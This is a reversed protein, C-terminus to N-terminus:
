LTSSKTAVMVSLRGSLSLAQVLSISASTRRATSLAAASAAARAMTMVPAPRPKQAPASMDRKLRSDPPCVGCVITAVFPPLGPL